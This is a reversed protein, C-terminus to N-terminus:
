KKRGMCKEREYALKVAVATSLSGYTSRYGDMPGHNHATATRMIQSSRLRLHSIAACPVETLDAHVFQVGAAAISVDHGWAVVSGDTKIASFAVDNACVTHVESTLLAEVTAGPSGGHGAQGWVVVSGDDKLAAFARDTHYIATVNASLADVKDARGWVVVKGAETLAAFAKSNGVVRVVTILEGQVASSDGGGNADGWKVVTGDDKV